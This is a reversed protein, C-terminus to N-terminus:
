IESYYGKKLWGDHRIEYILRVKLSKKSKLLLSAHRWVYIIFWAQSSSVGLSWLGPVALVVACHPLLWGTDLWANNGWGNRPLDPSRWRSEDDWGVFRVVQANGKYWQRSLRQRIDLGSCHLKFLCPFSASSTAFVSLIRRLFCLPADVIVLASLCAALVMAILFAAICRRSALFSDGLPNM